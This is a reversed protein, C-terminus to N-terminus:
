ARADRAPRRGAAGSAAGGGRRGARFGAALDHAELAAARAVDPERDEKALAKATLIVARQRRATRKDIIRADTAGTLTALAADWDAAATQHRM